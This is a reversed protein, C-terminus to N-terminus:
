YRKEWKSIESKFRSIHEQTTGCCGGIIKAGAELLRQIRSGMFEPTERYINKGNIYEPLGANAQALLPIDTSKRFEAIIKIMEEIGCGCNAGFALPKLDAFRKVIDSPSSGMMTRIGAPGFSFTFSVIVPLKTSELSGMAAAHAEEVDMMTEILIADVGAQELIVAQQSYIDITESYPLDGYPELLYGTPGMSAICFKGELKVSNVLEVAYKNLEIIKDSQGFFELKKRNAGFTNSTVFDSGADFYSKHVGKVLEPKTINWLEPCEELKLGLEIFRTGTAGDGLLIKGSNIFDHLKTTM